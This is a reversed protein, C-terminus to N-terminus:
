MRSVSDIANIDAGKELLLLMIELDGRETVYSLATRGWQSM